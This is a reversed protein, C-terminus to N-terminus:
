KEVGRLELELQEDLEREVIERCVKCYLTEDKTTQNEMCLLCINTM